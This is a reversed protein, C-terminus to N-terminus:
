PTPKRSPSRSDPAAPRPARAAPRRGIAEARVCIGGIVLFPFAALLLNEGFDDNWVESRAERGSACSPCAAATRAELVACAVVVLALAGLQRAGRNGAAPSAPRPAGRIERSVDGQNVQCRQGM